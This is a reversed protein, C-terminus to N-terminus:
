RKRWNKSYQRRQNVKGDCAFFHRQPNGHKGQRQQQQLQSAPWQQTPFRHYLSTQIPEPMENPFRPDCGVAMWPRKIMPGAHNVLAEPKYAVPYHPVQARHTSEVLYTPPPLQQVPVRVHFSGQRFQDFTFSSNPFRAIPSTGPHRSPSVSGEYASAGVVHMPIQPNNMVYDSTELQTPGLSVNPSIPHTATEPTSGTRPQFPKADVYKSLDTPTRRKNQQGSPSVSDCQPQAQEVSYDQAKSEQVTSTAGM